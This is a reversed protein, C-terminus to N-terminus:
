ADSDDRDGDGAATRLHFHMLERTLKQTTKMYVDTLHHTSVGHFTSDEVSASSEQSNLVSFSLFGRM